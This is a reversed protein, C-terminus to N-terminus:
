LGAAQPLFHRGTWTAVIIKPLSIMSCGMLKQGQCGEPMQRDRSREAFSAGGAEAAAWVSFFQVQNQM